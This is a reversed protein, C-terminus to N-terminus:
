SAPLKNCYCEYQLPSIKVIMVFPNRWYFKDTKGM